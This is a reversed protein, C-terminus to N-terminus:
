HKERHHQVLCYRYTVALYKSNINYYDGLEPHERLVKDIETEVGKNCDPVYPTVVQKCNAVPIKVKELMDRDGCLSDISQDAVQKVFAARTLTRDGDAAPISKPLHLEKNAEVYTCTKVTELGHEPLLGRLVNRYANYGASEQAFEIFYTQGAKVPIKFHLKKGMAQQAAMEHVGAHLHVWTYGKDHLSVVEQGDIYFTTSWFNGYGVSTRMMYVLGQDKAPPPPTQYPKGMTTCGVLLTFFVAALLTRLFALRM